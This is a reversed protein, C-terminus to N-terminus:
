SIKLKENEKHETVKTCKKLGEIDSIYPELLDYIPVRYVEAEGKFKLAIAIGQRGKVLRFLLKGNKELGEETWRVDALHCCAGEDQSGM